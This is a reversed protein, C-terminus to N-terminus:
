YEFYSVDLDVFGEIGDVKGKSTYQWIDYPGDYTPNVVNYQALWKTIEPIDATNIKTTFWNKNAYVGSEYGASDITKCFAKIVNTRTANDIGDARGGSGEVDLFIPYEIKQNGLLSLVMSAEEVAETENVAQTFFYVGVKIGAARAGNFNIDWYPDLVLAGTSSGRYGCRIIAYEIGSAAVANWDIVKNWKSVDIGRIGNEVPPHVIVSDDETEEGFATDEKAADIQDETKIEFEIDPIVTYSIQDRVNLPIADAPVNYDSEPELSVFYKGANVDYLHILGDMDEDFIKYSDDKDSTIDVVWRVDAAIGDDSMVRIRIDKSVSSLVLFVDKKDADLDSAKMIDSEIKEADSLQDKAEGNEKDRRENAAALSDKTAISNLTVEADNAGSDVTSEIDDADGHNKNPMLSVIVLVSLIFFMSFVAILRKYDM